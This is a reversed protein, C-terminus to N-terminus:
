WGEPMDAKLMEALCGYTVYDVPKTDELIAKAYFSM